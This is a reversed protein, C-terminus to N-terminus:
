LKKSSQNNKKLLSDLQIIQLQLVLRVARKFQESGNKYKQYGKYDLCKEIFEETM